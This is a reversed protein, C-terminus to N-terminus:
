EDLLAEIAVEQAAAQAAAAESGAAAFKDDETPKYFSLTKSSSNVLQPLPSSPLARPPSAPNLTPPHLTLQAASRSCVLQLM